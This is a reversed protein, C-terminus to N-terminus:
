AFRKRLAGAVGLMGTALLAISSPEPTVSSTQPTISGSTLTTGSADPYGAISADGSCLSNSSCLLSGDFGALSTTNIDPFFYASGSYLSLYYLSPNQGQNSISTFEETPAGGGSITADIASFSTSTGDLTITGGLAAGNDFTGQLNFVTDAHAALSAILLLTAAFLRSPM